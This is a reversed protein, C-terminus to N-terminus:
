IVRFLMFKKPSKSSIEDAAPDPGPLCILHPDPDLVSSKICLLKIKRTLLDLMVWGFSM